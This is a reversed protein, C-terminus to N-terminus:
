RFIKSFESDEKRSVARTGDQKSEEVGDGEEDDSVDSWKGFNGDDEIGDREATDLRTAESVNATSMTPKNRQLLHYHDEILQKQLEDQGTEEEVENVNV